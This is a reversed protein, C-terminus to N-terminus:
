FSEGAKVWCRAVCYISTTEMGLTLWYIFVYKALCNYSTQICCDFVNAHALKGGNEVYYLDHVATTCPTVFSM